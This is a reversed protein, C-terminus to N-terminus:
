PKAIRSFAAGHVGQCTECLLTTIDSHFQRRRVDVELLREFRKRASPTQLNEFPQPVGLGVKWRLLVTVGNFM